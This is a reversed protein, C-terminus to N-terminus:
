ATAPTRIMQGGAREPQVDLSISIKHDVLADSLRLARAPRNRPDRVVASAVDILRCERRWAILGQETQVTASLAPQVLRPM